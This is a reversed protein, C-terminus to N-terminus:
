MYPHLSSNTRTATKLGQSTDDSYICYKKSAHSTMEKVSARLPISIILQFLIVGAEKSAATERCLFLARRSYHVNM